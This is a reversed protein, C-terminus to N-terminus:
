RGGGNLCALVRARSFRWGHRDDRNIPPPLHGKAIWAVVSKRSIRALAAVEDTTLTAPPDTTPHIM